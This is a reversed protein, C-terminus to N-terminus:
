FTLITVHGLGLIQMNQNRTWLGKCRYIHSPPIICKQFDKLIGIYLILHECILIGHDGTDTGLTKINLALLFCEKKMRFM